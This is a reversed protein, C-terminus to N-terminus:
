VALAIAIELARQSIKTGRGYWLHNLRADETRCADYNLYETVSNYLGWWTGKVGPINTGRGTEMHTEIEKVISSNSGEPIEFVRNIYDFSCGPTLQVSALKRFKEVVSGFEKQAEQITKRIDALTTVAKSNHRVRFLSLSSREMSNLANGCSFRHPILSARISTSFDHSNSLLLFKGISDGPIIEADPLNLKAFAWIKKGDNLSGVTDLEAEGADLFPQFWDMQDRNQLPHYDKGCVGLVRDDTARIIARHSELAIPGDKGMTILPRCEVPWDLGTSTIALSHDRRAHEPVEIGFKM